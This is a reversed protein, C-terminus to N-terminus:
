VERFFKRIRFGAGLGTLTLAMSGSLAVTIPDADETKDLAQADSAMAERDAPQGGEEETIIEEVTVEKVVIGKAKKAEKKNKNDANKKGDKDGTGSGKGDKAGNITIAATMGNPATATIVASGEKLVKITGDESVSVIDPDSSSWTLDEATFGFDDAFLEDGKIVAGIKKESGIKLDPDDLDLEIGEVPSGYLTIDMGYIYQASDMANVDGGGYGPATEVGEKLPTQGLCFRFAEITHMESESIVRNPNKTSESMLALISPVAQADELAGELPTLATGDENRQYNKALNPYYYRTATLHTGVYFNRSYHSHDGSGDTTRFTIMEISGLDIGSANIVDILRPGKAVIQLVTGVDTVNSFRYISSGMTALESSTFSAKERIKDDREAAYQVRVSLVKGAVGSGEEAYAVAPIVFVVQCLVMAAICIIAAIRKKMM